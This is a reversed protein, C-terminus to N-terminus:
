FNGKQSFYLWIEFYIVVIMETNMSFSYKFLVDSLIDLIIHLSKSYGWFAYCYEFHEIKVYLFPRIPIM